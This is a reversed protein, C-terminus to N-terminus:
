LKGFGKIRKESKYGAQLFQTNDTGVDCDPTPLFNKIIDMELVTNNFREFTVKNSKLFQM